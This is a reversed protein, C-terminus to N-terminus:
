NDDVDECVEARELNEMKLMLASIEQKFGLLRKQRCLELDDEAEKKTLFFHRGTVYERGTATHIVAEGNIIDDCYIGKYSMKLMNTVYIYM